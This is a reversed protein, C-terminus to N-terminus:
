VVAGLHVDFRSTRARVRMTFPCRSCARMSRTKLRLPEVVYRSTAVTTGKELLGARSCLVLVYPWFLPFFLNSPYGCM